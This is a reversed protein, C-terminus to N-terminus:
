ELTTCMQIISRNMYTHCVNCNMKPNVKAAPKGGTAICTLAVNMGEKVHIEPGQQIYPANPPVIVTLRAKQSRLSRRSDVVVQCEFEADDNVDVHEIQM